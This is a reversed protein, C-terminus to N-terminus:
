HYVVDKHSRIDLDVPLLRIYMRTYFADRREPTSTAWRYLGELGGMKESCNQIMEKCERSMRAEATGRRARGDGKRFTTHNAHKSEKAIETTKPKSAHNAHKSEKVIETTKPKSAM